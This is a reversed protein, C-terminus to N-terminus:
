AAPAMIEARVMLQAVRDYKPEPNEADRQEEVAEPEPPRNEDRTEEKFGESIIRKAEKNTLGVDRLAKEVTRKNIKTNRAQIQDPVRGFVSLDYSGEVPEGDYIRDALNNDLAEQATFWTEEAMWNLVTKLDDGSRKAYDSAIAENIKEHLSMEKGVDEYLKALDSLNFYGFIDMFSMANHIMLFGGDVIEIEDAGMIFFSAASAALGDVHAIVKAKSQMIATKMARAAFVDGGSSDVRVHITDSNLANFQNVWELPDVGFWGGIDGYLYITSETEKNQIDHKNARQRISTKRSILM